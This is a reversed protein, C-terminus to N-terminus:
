LYLTTLNSIGTAPRVQREDCDPVHFTIIDDTSIKMWSRDYSISSLLYAACTEHLHLGSDPEELYNYVGLAFTPNTGFEWGEKVKVVVEGIEFSDCRFTIENNSDGIDLAQDSNERSLAEVPLILLTVRLGLNTLTM